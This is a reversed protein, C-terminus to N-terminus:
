CLTRVITGLTNKEGTCVSLISALRHVVLIERVSFLLLNVITVGPYIILFYNVAAAAAAAATYTFM